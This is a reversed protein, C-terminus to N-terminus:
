HAAGSGEAPPQPADVARLEDRVQMLLKGVNNQGSSVGGSVQMGAWGDSDVNVITKDGTALLAARLEAHEGGFKARLAPLLLAGKVDDWGILLM